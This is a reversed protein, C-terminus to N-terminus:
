VVPVPAGVGVAGERPAEGDAAHQIVRISVTPESVRQYQLLEPHTEAYPALAKADYTVHGKTYVAYLTAGRITSGHRFVDNKIGAELRAVHEAATRLLPEHAADFRDLEAQVSRLIEAREAQVKARAADAATRMEALQNLKSVIDGPRPPAAIDGVLRMTTRHLSKELSRLSVPARCKALAQEELQRAREPSLGLDHALAEAASPPEGDLGFRRTLVQYLREGDWGAAVRQRLAELFEGVVQGLHRARIGDIQQDDFGLNALLTSLRMETGYVATLLDNLGNVRQKLSTSPDNM